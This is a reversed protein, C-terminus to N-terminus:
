RSARGARESTRPAARLPQALFITAEAGEGGETVARPATAPGEAYDGNHSPTAGQYLILLETAALAKVMGQWCTIRRGLLFSDDTHLFVYALM